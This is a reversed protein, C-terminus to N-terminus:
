SRVRVFTFTWASRQELTGAEPEGYEKLRTASAKLTIKAIRDDGLKRMAIRLPGPAPGLPLAVVEDPEFPCQARRLTARPPRVTVSGALTTRGNSFRRTTKACPQETTRVEPGGCNETVTNRGTLTVTGTLGRLTVTRITGGVFRVVTPRLSHFRVARHGKSRVSTACLGVRRDTHDWEATSTGTVTLRFVVPAPTASARAAAACLAFLAILAVPRM